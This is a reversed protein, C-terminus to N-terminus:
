QLASRVLQNVLKGDARGKIEPMLVAMVKGMEKPSSAGTTQVAKTVLARLEAESLQEPLYAMLIALEDRLNDALDLRNAKSFEDMADRRLKVERALVDLTESDSLEHRCEIEANKISARIMRIVSLQLKGDERAKMAQKMDELLREKISM